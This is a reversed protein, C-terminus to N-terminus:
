MQKAFTINSRVNTVTMNDDGLVSELVLLSEELIAIADLQNSKCKLYGTNAQTLAYNLLASEAKSNLGLANRQAVLSKQMYDLSSSIEGMKYYVCGINNYTRGINDTCPSKINDTIYMELAENFTSLAKELDGQTYFIIGIEILSDAVITYNQELCASKLRVSEQFHKLAEELDGALHSTVGLNHYDVACVLDNQGYRDQDAKLINFYVENAEDYERFKLCDAVMKHSPPVHRNPNISTNDLTSPDDLVLPVLDLKQSLISAHGQEEEDSSSFSMCKEEEEETDHRYEYCVKGVCINTELRAGWRESADQFMNYKNDYRDENEDNDHTLEGLSITLFGDLILFSSSLTEENCSAASVGPTLLSQIMNFPEIAMSKLSTFRKKKERQPPRLDNSHLYKIATTQTGAFEKELLEGGDPQLISKGESSAFESAVLLEMNINQPPM